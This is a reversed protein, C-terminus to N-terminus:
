STQIGEQGVKAESMEGWARERRLFVSRVENKRQNGVDSSARHM